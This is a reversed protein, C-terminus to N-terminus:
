KLDGLLGGTDAPYGAAAFQRAKADFYARVWQFREGSKPLGVADAISALSITMGHAGWNGEPVEEIIVQISGGQGPDHPNGTVTVIAATVAAHVETKHAQNMYGEPITVRALFKGPPAVYTADSRGGVWWDSQAVETFLVSAFGLGGPTKANGEMMLLVDTLRQALAAKRQDTLAGQPYCVQVIPV